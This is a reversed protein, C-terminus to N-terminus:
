HVGMTPKIFSFVPMPLYEDKDDNYILNKEMYEFFNPCYISSDNLCDHLAEFVACMSLVAEVDNGDHDNININQIYKIIEPLAKKKLKVCHRLGDVWGSLM